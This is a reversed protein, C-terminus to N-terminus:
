VERTSDYCDVAMFLPNQEPHQSRLCAGDSKKSRCLGAAASNDSYKMFYDINQKSMSFFVM